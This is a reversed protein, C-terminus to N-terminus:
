PVSREPGFARREEAASMLVAASAKWINVKRIIIRELFATLTLGTLDPPLKEHMKGHNKGNRRKETRKRATEGNKTSINCAGLIFKKKSGDIRVFVPASILM